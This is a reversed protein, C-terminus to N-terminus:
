ELSLLLSRLNAQVHGLRCAFVITDELQKRQAHTISAPTKLACEVSGSSADIVVSPGHSTLIVESTTRGFISACGELMSSLKRGDAKSVLVRRVKTENGLRSRDFVVERVFLANDRYRIELDLSKRTSKQSIHSVKLGLEEAQLVQIAALTLFGAFIISRAKTLITM